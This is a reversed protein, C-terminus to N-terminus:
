FPPRLYLFMFFSQTGFAGSLSPASPVFVFDYFSPTSGMVGYIYVPDFDSSLNFSRRHFLKKETLEILETL